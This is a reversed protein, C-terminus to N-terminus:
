GVRRCARLWLSGGRPQLTIHSAACAKLAGVAVEEAVGGALLSATTTSGREGPADAEAVNPLVVDEGEEGMGMQERKGQQQQHQLKKEEQKMEEELVKGPTWNFGAVMAAVVVQLELRALTQGVCDRPGVSFSLPDPLGGGGGGGAAATVDDADERVLGEAAAAAAATAKLPQGESDGGVVAASADEGLQDRIPKSQCSSSTVPSPNESSGLWRDPDFLHATPGYNRPSTGIPYFPTVIWAGQAAVSLM